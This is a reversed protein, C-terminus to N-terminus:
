RWGSRAARPFRRDFAELGTHRHEELLGDGDVVGLRKPQHIGDLSQLPAQQHTVMSAMVRRDRPGAGRDAATLEPLDDGDAADPRRALLVGYKVSAGTADALRPGADREDVGHVVEVQQPVQASLDGLDLRHLARM